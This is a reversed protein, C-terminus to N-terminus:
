EQESIDSHGTVPEPMDKVIADGKDDIISYDSFNDMGTHGSWSDDAWDKEHIHNM